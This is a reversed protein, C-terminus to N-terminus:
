PGRRPGPCAPRAATAGGRALAGLETVIRFVLTSVSVGARAVLAPISPAEGREAVSITNLLAEIRASERASPVVTNSEARVRTDVPAPAGVAGLHLHILSESVNM